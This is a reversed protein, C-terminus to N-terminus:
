LIVGQKSLLLRTGSIARASMEIKSKQAHTEVTLVLDNDCYKFIKALVNDYDVEGEGAPVYKKLGNSIIYDKIHLYSLRPAMEIIFENNIDEGLETLNAIDLWFKLRPHNSNKFFNIIQEKDHVRCVPENELYLDINMRNACELAYALLPDKAFTVGADATVGLGSFIRLRSIGLKSAVNITHAIIRRKQADNIRPNFGFSDHVIEPDNEEIYWKFLPTAAAVLEIQSAIIHSQFDNIEQTNWFVFNKDNVTRLEGYKLDNERM